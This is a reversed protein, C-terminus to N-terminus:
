NLDSLGLNEGDLVESKQLLWGRLGEPNRVGVGDGGLEKRTVVDLNQIQNRMKDLAM